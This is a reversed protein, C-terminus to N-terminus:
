LHLRSGRFVEGVYGFGWGFVFVFVFLYSPTFISDERHNTDMSRAMAAAALGLQMEISPRGRNASSRCTQVARRAWDLMEVRRLVARADFRSIPTM